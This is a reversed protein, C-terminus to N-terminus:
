NPINIEGQHDGSNLRDRIKEAEARTNCPVCIRNKGSQNNYVTPKGTPGTGM